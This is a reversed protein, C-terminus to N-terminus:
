RPEFDGTNAGTLLYIRRRDNLHLVRDADGDIRTVIREGATSDSRPRQYIATAPVESEKIRNIIIREVVGLANDTRVLEKQDVM